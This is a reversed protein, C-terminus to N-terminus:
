TAPSSATAAGRRRWRLVMPALLLLAAVSMWRSTGLSWVRPQAVAGTVDLSYDLLFLSQEYNRNQEVVHVGPDTPVLANVLYVAMARQHRNEFTLRRHAGGAPVSASCDISIVGRGEKMENLSSFTVSSLTVPVDAGDIRVTIDRLVREAYAHQEDASLVGDANADINAIVRSFIAVGPTLRLQAHVRDKGVLITTAQLYQDLWHARAPTAFLLTAAVFAMGTKM